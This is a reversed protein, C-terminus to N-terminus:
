PVKDKDEHPCHIDHALPCKLRYLNFCGTHLCMTRPVEQTKTETKAKKNTPTAKPRYHQLLKFVEKWTHKIFYICVSCIVMCLGSEKPEDELGRGLVEKCYGLKTNEGSSHKLEAAPTLISAALDGEEVQGYTM